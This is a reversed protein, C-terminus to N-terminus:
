KHGLSIVTSSTDLRQMVKCYSSTAQALMLPIRPEEIKTRVYNIPEMISYADQRVGNLVLATNYSNELAEEELEELEEDLIKSRAELEKMKKMLLQGSVGQVLAISANVVQLTSVGSVNVLTSISTADVNPTVGLAMAAINLIFAAEAGLMDALIPTIIAMVLMPILLSTMVIGAFAMSFFAVGAPACFWTIVLAVALTLVQFIGKQYWKKTYTSHDNSHLRVSSNMLNYSKISGMDKVLDERLPITMLAGGQPNDPDEFAPRLTINSWGGGAVQYQAGLGLVSYVEVQNSSVQCKCILADAFYTSFEGEIDHSITEISLEYTGVEGINGAELKRVIRDWQLKQLYRADSITLSTVPPPPVLKKEIKGTAVNYWNIWDAESVETTSEAYIRQWFRYVYEKVEDKKSTVSCSLVIYIDDPQDGADPEESAEKFSKYLDKSNLKLLRCARYVEKEYQAGKEGINKGAIRLPTIPFYPSTDVSNKIALQPYKNTETLYIWEKAEPLIEEGKKEHYTVVYKYEDQALPVIKYHSLHIDKDKFEAEIIAELALTKIPSIVSMKSSPLGWPHGAKEANRFYCRANKLIGTTLNATLDAALNRNQTICGAITQKLLDPANEDYLLSSYATYVSVQEDDFWGM